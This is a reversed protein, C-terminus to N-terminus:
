LYYIWALVLSFKSRTLLDLFVCSGLRLHNRRPVASATAPVESPTDGSISAPIDPIEAFVRRFCVRFYQLCCEDQRSKTRYVTQGTLRKEYGITTTEIVKKSFRKWKHIWAHKDHLVTFVLVLSILANNLTIFGYM